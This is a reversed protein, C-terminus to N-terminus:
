RGTLFLTNHDQAILSSNSHSIPTNNIELGECYFIVDSNSPINGHICLKSNRLEEWHGSFAMITVSTRLSYYATLVLFMIRM